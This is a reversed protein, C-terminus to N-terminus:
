REDRREHDRADGIDEATPADTDPEDIDYDSCVTDFDEIVAALLEHREWAIPKIGDALYKIALDHDLTDYGGVAFRDRETQLAQRLRDKM